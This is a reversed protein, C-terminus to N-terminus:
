ISNVDPAHWPLPRSHPDTHLVRMLLHDARDRDPEIRVAGPRAGLASELAALRGHADAVTHVRRLAIRATWGWADVVASMVRSGALGASEAIQPWAALTREVRVRARRRRHTWWPVSLLVGGVLLLQPLPRRSVGEATASALWLGALLVVVVAYLREVPR